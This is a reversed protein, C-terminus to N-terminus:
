LLPANCYIIIVIIKMEMKNNDDDGTLVGTDEDGTLVGARHNSYKWYRNFIGVWLIARLM